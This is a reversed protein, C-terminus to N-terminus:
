PRFPNMFHVESRASTHSSASRRRGTARGACQRVLHRGPIWKLKLRKEVSKSDSIDNQSVDDLTMKLCKHWKIDIPSVKTM